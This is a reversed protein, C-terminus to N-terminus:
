YNNKSVILYVIGMISSVIIPSFLVILGIGINAGGTKEYAIYLFSDLYYYGWIFVSSIVGCIYAAILGKFIITLSVKNLKYQGYLYILGFPFYILITKFIRPIIEAVFRYESNLTISLIYRFLWITIISYLIAIINLSKWIKIRKENM